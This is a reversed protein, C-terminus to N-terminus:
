VEGEGNAEWVAGGLRVGGQLQVRRHLKRTRLGRVPRSGSWYPLRIREQRGDRLYTEQYLRGPGERDDGPVLRRQQVSRRDGKQVQHAGGPLRWPKERGMATTNIAPPTTTHPSDLTTDITTLQTIIDLSTTIAVPPETISDAVGEIPLFLELSSDWSVSSSFTTCPQIVSTLSGM